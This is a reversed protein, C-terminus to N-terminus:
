SESMDQADLRVQEDGRLAFQSIGRLALPEAEFVGVFEETLAEPITTSRVNYMLGLSRRCREEAFKSHRERCCDILCGVVTEAGFGRVWLPVHVRKEEIVV